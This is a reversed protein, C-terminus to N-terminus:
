VGGLLTELATEDMSVCREIPRRSPTELTYVRPSTGLRLYNGISLKRVLQVCRITWMPARIVGDHTRLIIMSAEQEIPMGNARQATILRRAPIPDDEAYQYLYFGAAHGDEHFDLALDYRRGALFDRILRTEQSRFSSFDRNLDYGDGNKRRNHCWGWPNALPVIDFAVDPYRDGAALDEIFRILYEAGAPENGHISGLLFVHRRVPGKPTRTALWVPATFDGYVVQGLARISVDGSVVAAIRADFERLSRAMPVNRYVPSPRMIAVYGAIGAAIVTVLVASVRTRMRMAVNEGMAVLM